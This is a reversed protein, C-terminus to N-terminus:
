DALADLEEHRTADHKRKENGGEPSRHAYPSLRERRFRGARNSFFNGWARWARVGLAASGCMKDPMFSTRRSRRLLCIFYM